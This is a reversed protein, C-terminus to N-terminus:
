QLQAQLMAERDIAATREVAFLRAQAAATAASTTVASPMVSMLPNDISLTIQPSESPFEGRMGNRETEAVQSLMLREARLQADCETCVYNDQLAHLSSSYGSCKVHREIFGCRGCIVGHRHNLSNHCYICDPRATGFQPLHYIFQFEPPVPRASPPPVAGSVVPDTVSETQTM